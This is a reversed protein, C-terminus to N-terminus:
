TKVVLILALHKRNNQDKMQKNKTKLRHFHFQRAQSRYTCVAGLSSLSVEWMQKRMKFHRQDKVSINDTIEFM